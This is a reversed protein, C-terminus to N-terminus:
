KVVKGQYSMIGGLNVIKYGQNKLQRAVNGARGGSLCYIYYTENKDKLFISANLALGSSPINIANPLHGDKFESVERVDILLGKKLKAISEDNISIKNKEFLGFM